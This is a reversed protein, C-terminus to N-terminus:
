RNWLVYEADAYGNACKSRYLRRMPHENPVIVATGGFEGLIQKKHEEYKKGLEKENKCCELFQYTMGEKWFLMGQFIGIQAWLTGGGLRIPPYEVTIRNHLKKPQITEFNERRREAEKELEEPNSLGEKYSYCGSDTHYFPFNPLGEVKTITAVRCEGLVIRGVKEGVQKVFLKPTEEKKQTLFGELTLQEFM